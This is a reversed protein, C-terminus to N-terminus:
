AVVRELRQALRVTYRTGCPAQRKLEVCNVAASHLHELDCSPCTVVIVLRSSRRGTVVVGEALAVVKVDKVCQQPVSTLNATTTAAGVDLGNGALPRGRDHRSM